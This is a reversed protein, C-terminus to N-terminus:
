TFDNRYEETNLPELGEGGVLMLQVRDGGAGIVRVYNDTGPRFAFTAEVQERPRVTLAGAHGQNAVTTNSYTVNDASVQVQLTCNNKSLPASVVFLVKGHTHRKSHWKGNSVQGEVAPVGLEYVSQKAATPNPM